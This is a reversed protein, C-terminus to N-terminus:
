EDKCDISKKKKLYEEKAVAFLSEVASRDVNMKYGEPKVTIGWYLSGENSVEEGKPLNLIVGIPLVVDIDDHRMALHTVLRSEIGNEDELKPTWLDLNENPYLYMLFKEGVIDIDGGMEERVWQLTTQDRDTLKM